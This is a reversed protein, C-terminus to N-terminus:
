YMLVKDKFCYKFDTRLNMEERFNYSDPIQSLANM